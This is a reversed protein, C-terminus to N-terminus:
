VLDALDAQPPCGPGSRAFRLFNAERGCEELGRDDAALGVVAGDALAWATVPVARETGTDDLYVAEHGDAPILASIRPLSYGCFNRLSEAAVLGAHDPAAVMGQVRGDTERWVLVPLVQGAAYAATGPVATTVSM